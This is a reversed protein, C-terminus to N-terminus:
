AHHEGEPEDSRHGAVLGEAAELVHELYPNSLAYRTARGEPSASVLGAQRLVALHASVTSQALGVHAAIEGVRHPGASLCHIISLRAPEALARFLHAVQPHDHASRAALDEQVTPGNAIEM